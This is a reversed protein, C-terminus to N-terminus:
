STSGPRAERKDSASISNDTFEAVISWGRQEAIRRCDERQRQVALPEGTLGPQGAPLDRLADPEDKHLEPEVHLDARKARDWGEGL